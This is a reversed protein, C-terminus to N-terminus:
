RTTARGRSAGSPTSYCISCANPIPTSGCRSNPSSTSEFEDTKLKSAITACIAMSGQPYFLVVHGQLPSGDRELWDNITQYRSVAKEYDTATLQVRIAIDALLLDVQTRLASGGRLRDM